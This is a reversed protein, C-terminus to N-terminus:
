RGVGPPMLTPLASRVHVARIGARFSPAKRRDKVYDSVVDVGELFAPDPNGEEDTVYDLFCHLFDVDLLVHEGGSLMEHYDELKTGAETTAARYNAAYFRLAKRVLESQGRGTRNTLDDLADRADEDLSATIRETGM